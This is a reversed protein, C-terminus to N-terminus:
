LGLDIITLGAVAVNVSVNLAYATFTVAHPSAALVARAIIQAGSSGSYIVVGDVAVEVQCNDDNDSVVHGLFIATTGSGTVTASAGQFLSVGTDVPVAVSSGTSVLLTTAAASGTVTTVAM